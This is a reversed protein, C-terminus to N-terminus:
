ILGRIQGLLRVKKEAVSQPLFDLDCNPIIVLNKPELQDRAKSVFDKIENPSELLSNRGDICGCALGKNFDVKALSDLSTAYFDVGISDVSYDLLAEIAKSSDGFYTHLM